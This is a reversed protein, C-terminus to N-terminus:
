ILIEPYKELTDNYFVTKLDELAQDRVYKSCGSIADEREKYINYVDEFNM